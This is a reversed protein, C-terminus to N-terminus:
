FYSVFGSILIRVEWIQFLYTMYFVRERERERYIYTYVCMHKLLILSIIIVVLVECTILISYIWAFKSGCSM